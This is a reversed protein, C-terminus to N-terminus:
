FRPVLVDNVSQYVLCIPVLSTVRGIRSFYLGEAFIAATILMFQIEDVLSILVMVLFLMDVNTILWTESSYALCVRFPLCKFFGFILSLHM